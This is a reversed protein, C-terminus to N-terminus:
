ARISSRRRRRGRPTRRGGSEDLSLELRDDGETDRRLTLELHSSHDSHMGCWGATLHRFLPRGIAKALRGGSRLLGVGDFIMQNMPVVQVHLWHDSLEPVKTEIFVSALTVSPHDIATDAGRHRLMPVVFKQSDRLTVARDYLEHSRLLLRTTNIPGAAIFAADFSLRVREGANLDVGDIAVQGGNEVTREVFLGPRYAIDGQRVM